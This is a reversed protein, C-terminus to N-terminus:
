VTGIRGLEPSGVASKLSSLDFCAGVLDVQAREANRQDRLLIVQGIVLAGATGLAGFSEALATVWDALNAPQPTRLFCGPSALLPERQQCATSPALWGSRDREANIMRLDYAVFLM